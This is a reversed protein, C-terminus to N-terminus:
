VLELPDQILQGFPLLPDDLQPEAEGAPMRPCQFLDAPLEAYGPFPDPLDLGLGQGLQAMWAPGLQEALVQSFWSFGPRGPAPRSGNVVAPETDGSHRGPIRDLQGRVKGAGSKATETLKPMQEAAKHAAVKSLEAAKEGAARTARKVAPSEAVKRGAKKMQEYRERGARPGVVFGVAFGALFTVRYRM